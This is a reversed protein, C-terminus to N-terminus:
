SSPLNLYSLPLGGEVATVSEQRWECRSAGSNEVPGPCPSSFLVLPLKHSVSPPRLLLCIHVSGSSVRGKAFLHKLPDILCLPSLSGQLAWCPRWKTTSPSSDVMNWFLLAGTQYYLLLILTITFYVRISYVHDELTPHIQVMRHGRLNSVQIYTCYGKWRCDFM